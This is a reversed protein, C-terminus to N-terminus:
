TDPITTDVPSIGAKMGASYAIINLGPATKFFVAGPIKTQFVM